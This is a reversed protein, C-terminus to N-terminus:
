VTNVGKVQNSASTNYHLSLLVILLILIPLIVLFSMTKFYLMVFMVISTLFIVALPKSIKKCFVLLYFPHCWLLNLNYKVLELSSFLSLYLLLFGLLGAM